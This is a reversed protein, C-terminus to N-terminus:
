SDFISEREKKIKEKEIEVVGNKISNKLAEFAKKVKGEAEDYDKGEATIKYKPASIYKIEAGSEAAETFATRLEEAGSLTNYTYVTAIYSVNHKKSSRIQNLQEMFSDKVKKPIKLNKFEATNSLANETFNIYNGFAAIIQNGISEEEAALGENKIIQHLMARLRKELNYLKLKEKAKGQPVKKISIDITNRERDYYIVSCVVTQGEHIFEHINKIWGSSVEKLPLFAETNNYEPLVCYAGFPMVKVIQAIVFEGIKPLLQKSESSM